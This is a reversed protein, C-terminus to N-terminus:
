ADSIPTRNGKWGPYNQNCGIDLTRYWYWDSVLTDQTHPRHMHTHTHIHYSPCAGINLWMAAIYESNTAMLMAPCNHWHRQDSVSGNTVLSTRLETDNIVQYDAHSNKKLRSMVNILAPAKYNIKYWCKLFHATNTLGRGQCIIQVSWLESFMLLQSNSMLTNVSHTKYIPYRYHSACLHM